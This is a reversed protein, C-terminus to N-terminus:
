SGCWDAITLALIETARVVDSIEVFENVAHANKIRGPGFNVTPINGFNSFIHMDTGFHAPTVAANKGAVQRYCRSITRTLAHDKSTKAPPLITLITVIPPNRRLWEDRKSISELFRRLKKEIMKVEEGPFVGIAGEFYAECPVTFVYEGSKLVGINFARRRIWNSKIANSIIYSVKEVANVRDPDGILLRWHGAEGKLELTFRILGDMSNTIQGDTPETIIAADATYGKALCALTGGVGDTVGAETPLEEDVVSELIIDGELQGVVENVCEVATNMAILGAKMDCAGRGYLRKGVVKGSWPGYKWKEAPTPAVVDVHGNLIISRGVGSGRGKVVGVVNPRGRYKTHVRIRGYKHRNMFLEDTADFSHVTLGTDKFVDSMYVQAQKEYGTTSPIQVIEQLSRTM